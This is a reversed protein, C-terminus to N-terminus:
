ALPQKRLLVLTHDKEIVHTCRPSRYKTPKSGDSSPKVNDAAEKAAYPHPRGESVRYKGPLTTGAVIVSSNREEKFLLSESSAPAPPAEGRLQDRGYGLIDGLVYDAAPLRGASACVSRVCATRIWVEKSKSDGSTTEEKLKARAENIIGM